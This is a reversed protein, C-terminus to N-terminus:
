HILDSRGPRAGFSEEAVGAVNVDGDILNRWLCRKTIRLIQGTNGSVQCM